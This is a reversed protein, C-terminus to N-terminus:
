APPRRLFGTNFRSFFSLCVKWISLAWPCRNPRFNGANFNHYQRSRHDFLPLDCNGVLWVVIYLLTLDVLSKLMGILVGFGLPRHLQQEINGFAGLDRWNSLM